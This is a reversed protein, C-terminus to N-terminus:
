KSLQKFRELFDNQYKESLESENEVTETSVVHKTNNKQKFNRTEWFNAVASENVLEAEFMKAQTLLSAQQKESLNEWVPKINEPMLKLVKEELTEPKVSLAEKIMRMVDHGSFYQKKESIYLKVTEREDETLENFYNIQGKSLFNLFHLDNVVSVERKKAEAILEDINKYRSVKQETAMTVKEEEVESEGDGEGPKPAKDVEGAVITHENDITPEVGAEVKVGAVKEPESVSTVVPEGVLVEAETETEEDECPEDDCPEDSTTVELEHEPEHPHSATDFEAAEEPSPVYDSKPTEEGDVEDEFEYEEGDFDVDGFGFDELTRLSKGEGEFLKNDLKSVIMEVYKGLINQQRVGYNSFGILTNQETITEELKKYLYNTYKNNGVVEKAVEQNWEITSTLKENISGVVSALTVGHEISNDLKEALYDNHRIAKKVLASNEMVSTEIKGFEDVVHDNYKTQKDQFKRLEANEKILSATTEQLRKSEKVLINFQSGFYELYSSIKNQAQHLEEQYDLLQELKENTLKENKIADKVKKDTKAIESVIYKSYDALVDRSVSENNNMNILQNIQSENTIQYVRFNTNDTYGLSENIFNVRAEKFGPDAVIDYTFLKKPTVTGDAETIGAARSSVFLPFGEQLMDRVQRGHGNPILKIKGDVRNKAENFVAEVISHSADKLKTDFVDPHDLEGYVATSTMRENMEYLCPLFKDRKYIRENRNKIDFLTFPGGIISSNKNVNETILPSDCEEYILVPVNAKM